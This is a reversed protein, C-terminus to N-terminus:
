KGKMSRYKLELKKIRKKIGLKGSRSSKKIKEEIEKVRKKRSDNIDIIRDLKKHLSNISDNLSCFIDKNEVSNQMSQANELRGMMVRERNEIQLIQAEKQLVLSIKDNLEKMGKEIIKKNSQKGLSLKKLKLLQKDMDERAEDRSHYKHSVLCLHKMFRKLADPNIGENSGNKDSDM